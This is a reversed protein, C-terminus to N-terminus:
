AEPDQSPTLGKKRNARSGACLKKPPPSTLPTTPVTETADM